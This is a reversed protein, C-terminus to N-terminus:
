NEGVPLFPSFTPSFHIRSLRVGFSTQPSAEVLSAKVTKMQHFGKKNYLQNDLQDTDVSNVSNSERRKIVGGSCVSRRIPKM